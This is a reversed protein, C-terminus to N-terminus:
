VHKCDGDGHSAGPPFPKKLNALSKNLHPVHDIVKTWASGMVEQM